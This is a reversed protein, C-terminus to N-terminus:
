SGRSKRGRLQVRDGLPRWQVSSRKSSFKVKLQVESQTGPPGHVVDHPDCLTLLEECIQAETVRVRIKKLEFMELESFLSDWSLVQGVCLLASTDTRDKIGFAM